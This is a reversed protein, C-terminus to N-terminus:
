QLLIDNNNYINNYLYQINNIYQHISSNTNQTLSRALRFCCCLLLLTVVFYYCFVFYCVNFVGNYINIQIIFYPRTKWASPVWFPTPPKRGTMFQLSIEMWRFFSASLCIIVQMRMAPLMMMMVPIRKSMRPRKTM